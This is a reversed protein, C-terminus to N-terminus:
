EYDIDFLNLEGKQNIGKLRDQAIKFYQENIEFGIYKLGLHKAALATTGSGLFPDFVVDGEKCSHRLHREVLELPKITPHDYQDKDFKNTSSIYWKSKNEYGDNYRPADQGKFVLCHEINPLWTNNVAPVCNTKCWVLLNFRCKHKGVFYQMLDYIQEKSCWIYVYISKCVRVFEDLIKYDIGNVINATALNRKNLLNSHQAHWKEYEDKTKADTMKQRLLEIKKDLARTSNESGLEHGTKQIRTSLASETGGGFEILYPIDTYIIDVSKDPMQKILEYADGLYINNPKIEM